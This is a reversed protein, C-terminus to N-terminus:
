RTCDRDSWDAFMGLGHERGFRTMLSSMETGRQGMQVRDDWAETTSDYEEANPIERTFRNGVQHCRLCLKMNYLYEHRTELQPSIGNGNPGTGPFESTEPAEMLSLWYNAPYVAAAEQPTKAVVATLRLDQGPTATVPISDVLGYGRVWVSYNAQPLEPLLFRGEDNTVVIKRFKTNLDDTEAIVWVGAEPSESSTVVGTIIEADVGQGSAVMWAPGLALLSGVALLGVRRRM